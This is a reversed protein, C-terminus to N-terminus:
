IPLNSRCLKSVLRQQEGMATDSAPSVELNAGISGGGANAIDVNNQEEM